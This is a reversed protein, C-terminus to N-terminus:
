DPIEVTRRCTGDETFELIKNTSRLNYYDIYETNFQIAIFHKSFPSQRYHMIANMSNGGGIIIRKTQLSLLNTRSLGHAGYWYLETQDANTFFGQITEGYVNGMARSIIVRERQTANNRRIIYFINNELKLYYLEQKYPFVMSYINKLTDIIRGSHDTKYNYGGKTYDDMFFLYKGTEDWVPYLYVGKVTLQTLSDGNTKIKYINKDTKEYALWGTPSISINNLVDKDLLTKLKTARNYKWLHHFNRGENTLYYILDPDRLDYLVRWVSQKGHYSTVETLFPDIPHKRWDLATDECPWPPEQTPLGLLSGPNLPLKGTDKRCASCLLALFALPIYLRLNMQYIYAFFSRLM